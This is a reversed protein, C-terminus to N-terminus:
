FAIRVSYKKSNEREMREMKESKEIKESKDLMQTEITDLFTEKLDFSEIVQPYNILYEFLIKVNINRWSISYIIDRIPKKQNQPNSM